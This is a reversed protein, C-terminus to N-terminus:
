YRMLNRRSAAPVPLHVQLASRFEYVVELYCFQSDSVSTASSNTVSIHTFVLTSTLVALPPLKNAISQMGYLPNPAFECLLIV